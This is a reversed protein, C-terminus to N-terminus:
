PHVGGFSTWYWTTLGLFVCLLAVSFTSLLSHTCASLTHKLEQELNQGQSGAIIVPCSGLVLVFGIRELSSQTM